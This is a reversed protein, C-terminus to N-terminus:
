NATLTGGFFAIGSKVEPPNQSDLLTANAYQVASNGSDTVRMTLNVLKKATTTTVGVGASTRAVGVVLRGPETANVQYAVSQGGFELLEGPSWNEFQVMTPDYLLDFSAGFVDNTNNVYVNLIVLAGSNTGTTYVTNGAPNQADPTFSGSLNTSGGPGGSVVDSGGSGGGCALAACLSFLVLFRQTQAM